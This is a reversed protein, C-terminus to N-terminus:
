RESHQASSSLKIGIELRDKIIKYFFFPLAIEAIINGVFVFPAISWFPAKGGTGAWWILWSLWSSLILDFV